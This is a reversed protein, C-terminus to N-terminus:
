AFSSILSIAPVINAYLFTLYLNSLIWAAAPLFSFLILAVLSARVPSRNLELCGDPWITEDDQKEKKSDGSRFVGLGHRKYHPLM